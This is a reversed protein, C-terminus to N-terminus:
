TTEEPYIRTVESGGEELSKALDEDEQNFIWVYSGRDHYEGITAYVPEGKSEPGSFDVIFFPHSGHQYPCGPCPKDNDAATLEKLCIPCIIM